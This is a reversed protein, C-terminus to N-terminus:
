GLPGKSKRKARHDRLVAGVIGVPAATQILVDEIKEWFEKMKEDALIEKTVMKYGQGGHTLWIKVKAVTDNSVKLTKKIDEYSYNRSLLLAIALRKALMIKEVPSLLDDLFKQITGSSSLRALSKWFIKFMREEIEKSLPYRSVQPM